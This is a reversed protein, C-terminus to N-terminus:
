KSHGFRHPDKDFSAKCAESCFYFVEGDHASRVRTTKEDVTMKCVPDIAM